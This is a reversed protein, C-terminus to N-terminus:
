NVSTLLTLVRMEDEVLIPVKTGASSLSRNNHMNNKQCPVPSQKIVSSNSQKKRQEQM